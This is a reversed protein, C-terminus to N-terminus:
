KIYVAGYQHYDAGSSDWYPGDQYGSGYGGFYNGSWCAGYWWPNNNYLSSCNAGYADQDNDFTTLNFGNAAHYSYFGPAGTATEDSVAEPSNMGYTGNFSSFRWRYRKTHSGNLATGNTTSVFQVVTIKGSTVKNSLASWFKTGVWINHDALSKSGSIPESVANTADSTGSRYNVSNVANSYTLNKMGGTNLRNALVCVWGGGDYDQNVYLFQRNGDGLIDINYFGSPGKIQSVSTYYANYHIGM